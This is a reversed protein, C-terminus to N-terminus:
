SVFKQAFCMQQVRCCSVSIKLSCIQSFVHRSEMDSMAIDYSQKFMPPPLTNRYVRVRKREASHGTNMGNQKVLKKSGSWGQVEFGRIGCPVGVINTPAQGEWGCKFRYEQACYRDTLWQIQKLGTINPVLWQINDFGISLDLWSHRIHDNVRWFLEGM